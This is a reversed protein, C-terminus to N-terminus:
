CAVPDLVAGGDGERDGSKEQQEVDQGEWRMAEYKFRKVRSADWGAKNSLIKQAATSLMLDSSKSGFKASEYTDAGSMDLCKTVYDVGNLRQDFLRVRAMGGGVSEWAHMCAFSTQLTVAKSPLGGILAHFHRRSTLEGSEQRLCWPLTPFYVRFTRSTKRCFAFWMRLRVREPLRESAFTFTGFLQWRIKTLQYVDPSEM